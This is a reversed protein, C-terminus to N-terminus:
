KVDVAEQLISQSERKLRRRWFHQSMLDYDASILNALHIMTMGGISIIAVRAAVPNREIWRDCFESLLEGDSSHSVEYAVVDLVINLWKTAATSM